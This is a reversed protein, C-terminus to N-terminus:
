SQKVEEIVFKWQKLCNPCKIYGVIKGGLATLEHFRVASYCKDCELVYPSVRVNQM